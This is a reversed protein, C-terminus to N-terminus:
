GIRGLANIVPGQETMIKAYKGQQGDGGVYIKHDTPVKLYIKKDDASCYMQHDTDKSQITCVGNKDFNFNTQGQNSQNQQSQGQQSGNPGSANSTDFPTPVAYRQPNIRRQQQRFYETQKSMQVFKAPKGRTVPPRLRAQQARFQATQSVAPSGGGGRGQNGGQGQQQKQQQFFGAIWGEPGAMHTLQNYNRDPNQTHSIGNFNLATLNGRPYFNTNGGSDGTVGGLYYDSPSAHGKDGVQTPERAYQSFAQPIKVVPLNQIGNSMEFAVKIFDKAVEVVHCPVGKMRQELGTNIKNLGWKALGLQFPFRHADYRSM